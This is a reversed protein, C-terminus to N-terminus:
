LGAPLYYLRGPELEVRPTNGPLALHVKVGNKLFSNGEMLSDFFTLNKQYSRVSLTNKGSHTMKECLAVAEELHGLQDVIGYELAKKGHYIRGDGIPGNTIKHLPINRSRSVITAFKLYCEQVMDQVIKREEPTREKVPSLMDKMAGSKYVEGQVGIKDLLGKVNYSSIIVGISGTMTTDAAIIKDCGAAIYYGGSAAISKMLAIVPRKTKARFALIKRYIEDAANVEGGPSNISIIVAKVNSDEEAKQLMLAFNEPTVIGPGAKGYMITGHVPIVAIHQDNKRDFGTVNKVTVGSDSFDGPNGMFFLGPLILVFFFLFVAGLCGICGVGGAIFCSSFSSKRPPFNQNPYAAFNRHADYMGQNSNAYEDNM